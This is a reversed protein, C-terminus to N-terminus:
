LHLRDDGARDIGRGITAGRLEPRTGRVDARHGLQTRPCRCCLLVAAPDHASGVLKRRCGKALQRRQHRCALATAALAGDPAGRCHVNGAGGAHRLTIDGASPGVTLAVASIVPGLAAGSTFAVSAVVAVRVSDGDPDPKVMAASAAGLLTGRGM